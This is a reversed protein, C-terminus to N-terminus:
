TGLANINKYNANFYAFGVYKLSATVTVRVDFGVSKATTDLNTVTVTINTSM